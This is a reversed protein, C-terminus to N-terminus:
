FKVWLGSVGEVNALLDYCAKVTFQGGPGNKWLRHDEGACMRGQLRDLLMVVRLTEQDFVDHRLIPQWVFERGTYSVYSAVVAHPDVAISFIDRFDLALPHRGYWVDLWFKLRRGNEVEFELGKVFVNFRNM